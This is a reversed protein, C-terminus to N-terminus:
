IMLDDLPPAPPSVCADGDVFHLHKDGAAVLADYAASMAARNATQNLGGLIGQLVLV